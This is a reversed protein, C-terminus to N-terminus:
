SHGHIGFYLLGVIACIAFIVAAIILGFMKAEDGRRMRRHYAKPSGLQQETMSNMKIILFEALDSPLLHVKEGLLENLASIWHGEPLVNLCLKAVLDGIQLLEFDKKTNQQLLRQEKLKLQALIPPGNKAFTENLEFFMSNDKKAENCVKVVSQLLRVLESHEAVVKAYEPSLKIDANM